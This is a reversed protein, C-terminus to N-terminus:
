CGGLIINSPSNQVNFKAVCVCIRVAGDGSVEITHVFMNLPQQSKRACKTGFQFQNNMLDISDNIQM